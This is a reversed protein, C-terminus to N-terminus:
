FSYSFKDKGIVCRGDKITCTQYKLKGEIIAQPKLIRIKQIFKAKETFFSVKGKWYEDFHKQPKISQLNGLIEFSESKLFSIEIPIPGPDLVNDTAYLKWEKDINATFILDVTDGVKPTSKNSTFAFKAPKVIQANTCLSLCSFLFILLYKMTNPNLKFSLFSGNCPLPLKPM